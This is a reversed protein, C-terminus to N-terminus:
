GSGGPSPAPQRWPMEPAGTLQSAKYRDGDKSFGVYWRFVGERRPTSPDPDQGPPAPAGKIYLELQVTVTGQRVDVIVPTVSLEEVAFGSGGLDRIVQALSDSAPPLSVEALPRVDGARLAQVYANLLALLADSVGKRMEDDVQVGPWVGVFPGAPAELPPAGPVPSASGAPPGSASSDSNGGRGALVLAIVAGAVGAAAIALLMGATRVM